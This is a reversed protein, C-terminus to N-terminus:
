SRPTQARQQCTLEKGGPRGARFSILHFFVNGDFELVLLRPSPGLKEQGALWRRPDHFCCNEEVYRILDAQGFGTMDMWTGATLTPIGARRAKDSVLEKESGSLPEFTQWDIM